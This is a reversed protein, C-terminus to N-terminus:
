LIYIYIYQLRKTRVGCINHPIRETYFYTIKNKNEFASASYQANEKITSKIIAIIICM